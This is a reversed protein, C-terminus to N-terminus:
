QGQFIEYAKAGSRRVFTGPLLEDHPDSLCDTERDQAGREKPALRGGRKYLVQDLNSVQFEPFVIASVEPIERDLVGVTDESIQLFDGGVGRVVIKPM